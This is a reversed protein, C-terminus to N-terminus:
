VCTLVTASCFPSTSIGVEAGPVSRKHRSPVLYRTYILRLLSIRPDFSCSSIFLFSGDVIKKEKKFTLM